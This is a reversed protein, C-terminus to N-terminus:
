RLISARQLHGYAKAKIKELEKEAAERALQRRRELGDDRYDSQKATKRRRIESLEATIRSILHIQKIEM